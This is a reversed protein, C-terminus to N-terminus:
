VKENQSELLVDRDQLEKQLNDVTLRLQRLETHFTEQQEVREKESNRRLQDIHDELRRKERDLQEIRERLEKEKIM